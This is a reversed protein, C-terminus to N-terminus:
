SEIVRRSEVLEWYQDISLKLLRYHIRAVVYAQAVLGTGKAFIYLPTPPVLIGGGPLNTFDKIVPRFMIAGSGAAGFDQRSVLNYDIITSESMGPSAFANSICMGYTLTDGSANFQADSYSDISYEIRAIVWAVKELLGIGTELKKFTLTNVASEQVSLIAYNAFEDASLKQEAM